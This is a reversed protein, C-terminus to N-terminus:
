HARCRWALPLRSLTLILSCGTAAAGGDLPSLLAAQDHLFPERLAPLVHAGLTLELTHLGGGTGPLVHLQQRSLRRLDGGTM